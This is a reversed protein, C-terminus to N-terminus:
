IEVVAGTKIQQILNTKTWEQFWAAIPLKKNLPALAENLPKGEQLRSLLNFQDATVRPVRILKDPRRTVMVHLTQKKMRKRQAATM